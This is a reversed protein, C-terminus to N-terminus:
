YDGTQNPVESTSPVHCRKDQAIPHLCMVPLSPPHVGQACTRTSYVHTSPPAVELSECIAESKKENHRQYTFVPDIVKQHVKYHGTGASDRARMGNSQWAM